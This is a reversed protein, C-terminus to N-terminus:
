ARHYVIAPLSSGAGVSDRIRAILAFVVQTEPRSYWLKVSDIQSLIEYETGGEILLSSPKLRFTGFENEHSIYDPYYEYVAWEDDFRVLKGMHNFISMMEGLNVITSLGFVSFVLRLLAKAM